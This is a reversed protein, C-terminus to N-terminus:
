AVIWNIADRTEVSENGDYEDIRYLTGKPIEVV